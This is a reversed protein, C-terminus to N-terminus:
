EASRAGYRRARLLLEQNQKYRDLAQKKRSQTEAEAARKDEPLSLGRARLSGRTKEGEAFRPETRMSEAIQDPTQRARDEIPNMRAAEQDQLRVMDAGGPTRSIRDLRERRARARAMLDAGATGTSATKKAYVPIGGKAVGVEQAGRPFAGTEYKRSDANYWKPTTDAVPSEVAAQKPVIPNDAYTSKNPNFLTATDASFASLSTDLSNGSTAPTPAAPAATKDALPPRVPSKNTQYPPGANLSYMNVPAEVQKSTKAPAPAAARVPPMETVGARDLLKPTYTSENPSLLQYTAAASGARDTAAPKMAKLKGRDMRSKPDYGTKNERKFRALMGPSVDAVEGGAAYRRLGRGADPKSYQSAIRNLPNMKM